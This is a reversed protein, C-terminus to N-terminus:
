AALGSCPETENVVVGAVDLGRSRAVELTLLTHSLTGLSRRAVVVLPLHLRKALDAVTASDAIPCLLGGVGEVLVVAGPRDVDRVARVLLDLSLAVGHRRAAVAPAVPESFEWPTVAEVANDAGAAEVLAMTDSSIWRGDVRQAGTAVPKSVRVNVGRGRLLRALGAAVTTKGVGTDTGTIFLGKM